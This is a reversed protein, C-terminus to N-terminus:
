RAPALAKGHVTSSHRVTMGVREYLALAGTDTHTWLACASRGQRHFTRFAHRLLVRAIGRGRHDHRVAVREVYGEAGGPPDSSLVVGVMEDGALAVPSAAPAFAASEVTRRAWEPYATRHRQWDDFADEALRYAAQEDGPRFPRVTIGAPAQPVEPGAPLGIELLWETVFPVYGRSRLLVAAATDGDPVSQSLRDAGYRRACLESWDLLARGLGRGRHGPHVHVTARRADLRGWGAPSGDPACVLVTGSRPEPGPFGPATVARGLLDQECAAVLRHLAPLDAPTAPRSQYGAPLPVCPDRM